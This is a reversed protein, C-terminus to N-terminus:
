RLRALFDQVELLSPISSSAGPRTVSLAAAAMAFIISDRFSSGDVIAAALAGNFCDGAAVTDVATVDFPPLWEGKVGDESCAVGQEGMTLIVAKFGGREVLAIAGQIADEPDKIRQNLL